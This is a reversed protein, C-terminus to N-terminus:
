EYYTLSEFDGSFRMPIFEGDIYCYEDASYAISVQTNNQKHFVKIIAIDKEPIYYLYSEFILDDAEKIADTIELARDAYAEDGYKTEVELEDGYYVSYFGIVRANFTHEKKGFIIPEKLNIETKKGDTLAIYTDDSTVVGNQYNYTIIYDCNNIIYTEYSYPIAFLIVPALVVALEIGLKMKDTKIKRRANAVIVGVISLILSAFATPLLFLENWDFEIIDYRLMVLEIISFVILAIGIINSKKKVSKILSTIFLSLAGIFVFVFNFYIAFVLM